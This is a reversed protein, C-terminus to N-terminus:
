RNGSTGYHDIQHFIAKKHVFVAEKDQMFLIFASLWVIM